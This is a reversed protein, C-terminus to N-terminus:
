IYIISRRYSTDDTSPHRTGIAFFFFPIAYCIVCRVVQTHTHSSTHTHNHTHSQTHTHTHARARGPRPPPFSSSSSLLDLFSVWFCVRVFFFFGQCCRPPSHFLSLLGPWLPPTAAAVGGAGGVECETYPKPNTYM